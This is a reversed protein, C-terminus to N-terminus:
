RGTTWRRSEPTLLQRVVLACALAGCLMLPNALASVLFMVGAGVASVILCIRAWEHGRMTLWALAHAGICWAALLGLMFAMTLALQSESLGQEFVSPDQTRLDDMMADPSSAMVIAGLILVVLAGATFVHTLITARIISLPPRAPAQVRTAPDPASWEESGAAPRPAGLPRPEPIPEGNFWARSPQMWLMLAAVGLLTTTFGGILFGAIVVPLAVLGLLRRTTKDGGYTWGALLAAAAAGAGTILAAVQLMSRAGSLTVGTGSWGPQDLLDELLRTTDLSHLNAVTEWAALVSFVGSVIVLTLAMTTQWPRRAESTESM